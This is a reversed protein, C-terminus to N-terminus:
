FKIELCSAVIYALPCRFRISHIPFRFFFAHANHINYLCVIEVEEPCATLWSIRDSVSLLWRTGLPFPRGPVEPWSASTSLPVRFIFDSPPNLLYPTLSLLGSDTEEVSLKDREWEPLMEVGEYIFVFYINKYVLITTWENRCYFM